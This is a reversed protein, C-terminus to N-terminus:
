VRGQAADLRRTPMRGCVSDAFAGQDQWTRSRVGQDVVSSGLQAKFGALISAANHHSHM